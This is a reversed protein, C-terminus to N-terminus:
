ARRRSAYLDADARQIAQQPPEQAELQGWGVSLRIPGLQPHSTWPGHIALDRLKEVVSRAQEPGTEPLAVIFEDGGFRALIDTQRLRMQLEKAVEKLLLDGTPHGLTDNIRKFGNIDIMLCSLQRQYRQSREYEEQWRELFRRRNSLGTLEDTTALHRLREAPWLLGLLSAMALAGFILLLTRTWAASPVVPGTSSQVEFRWLIDNFRIACEASVRSPDVSWRESRYLAQQGEVLQVPFSGQFTLKFFDGLLSQLDFVAVLLQGRHTRARLPEAMVLFSRRSRTLVTWASPARRAGPRIRGAINRALDAREAATTTSAPPSWWHFATHTGLWGIGLLRPTHEVASNALAQQESGSMTPAQDLTDRLLTLTSRRSQLVPALQQQTRYLIFRTEEHVAQHAQWRVLLMTGVAGGSVGLTLLSAIFLLRYHHSHLHLLKLTLRRFPRPSFRPM